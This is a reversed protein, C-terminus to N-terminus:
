RGKVKYKEILKKPREAPEVYATYRHQPRAFHCIAAAMVLDDHEGPAAEPRYNDNYVFTLMEGLTEFSKVGGPDEDMVTRLGALILPRTVSDTRFGYANVYRKQQTDFRQREYLRPYGWDELMLQPYTSYNTEIALLAGNFYKGLCYMQKAYLRESFTHRLECVQEGTRNDVGWGIFKDSGDGATDGGIVYPVNKEPEAWLKIFGREDDVWEINKPCGNEEEDFEFRGVRLPKPATQRLAQIVTNDFFPTGSFLFAEDPNSPYEQRFIQIDGQCNVKICWRRWALQEDDLGYLERMQEEEPTWETGPEVPRRYEPDDYWAFFVPRFGNKGSVADDWFDKFENYGNATSEVVVCTEMDDPVAQLIGTMLFRMRPWFAVESLHVNRLTFSRGAGKGGATVCRIRSRLGPNGAKKQPDRTPNEFVLEQANSNKKMPKIPAPLEDYFLKNMNFLNTTAPEDHAVILTTANFNTATDAFFIGETLTSLGLQRAKLIVVRVPRGAAYEERFIEYLKEQAPKFKLQTLNSKKDRIKLFNECYVKPNRIDIM